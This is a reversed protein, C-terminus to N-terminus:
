KIFVLRLFFIMQSVSSSKEENDTLPYLYQRLKGTVRYIPM